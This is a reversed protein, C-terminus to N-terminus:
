LGVVGDVALQERHFPKMMWAAALLGKERPQRVQVVQHRILTPGLVSALTAHFDFASSYRCLVPEEIELDEGRSAKSSRPCVGGSFAISHPSKQMDGWIHQACCIQPYTFDIFICLVPTQTDNSCIHRASCIQEYTTNLFIHRP